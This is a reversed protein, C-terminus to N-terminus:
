VSARGIEVGRNYFALAYDPKLRLAQTDDEMAGRYDGLAFKANGRSLYDAATPM